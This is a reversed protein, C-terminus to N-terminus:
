FESRSEEWYGGEWDEGGLKPGYHEQNPHWLMITCHPLGTMKLFLDKFEDWYVASTLRLVVEALECSDDSFLFSAASIVKCGAATNVAKANEFIQGPMWRLMDLDFHTSPCYTCDLRGEYM